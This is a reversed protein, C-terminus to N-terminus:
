RVTVAFPQQIMAAGHQLRLRVIHTIEQGMPLVVEGLISMLDEALVMGVELDLLTVQRVERADESLVVASLAAAVDPDYHGQSHQIEAAAELPTKGSQIHMDYDLAVHLLRAEWPIDEGKFGHLPPGEGDFRKCQYAVIEAITNLRPVNALLECSMEPCKDFMRQEAPSLPRGTYAYTLIREPVSVCGIQSLMASVELEWTATVGLERALAAVTRRCRAARGFATPSALALVDSLLKVSGGLTKALLDREADSWRKRELSGRIRAKLLEADFPKTLYDDAGSEICRLLSSVDDVASVMIVPVHRWLPHAKLHYLVAYGDLGPMMIDLLVLDPTEREIARIASEGDPVVRVDYEDLVSVVIEADTQNDDVVLLTTAM